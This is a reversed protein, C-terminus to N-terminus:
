KKFLFVNKIQISKYQDNDFNVIPFSASGRGDDYLLEITYNNITYKGNGPKKFKPDISNVYYLATRDEFRGDAYFTITPEYGFTTVAAPSNDATYIGSLKLGDVASLKTYENGGYYVKNNSYTFDVVRSTAGYFTAKGTQLNYNAWYDKKVERDTERDFENFGMDPLVSLTNLKGDSYVTLLSIKKGFDGYINLGSSLGMYIGQIGKGRLTYCPKAPSPLNKFQLRAWFPAIDGFFIIDFDSSYNAFTFVTEVQGNVKAVWLHVFFPANNGERVNAGGRAIDYGKISTEKVLVPEQYKTFGGLYKQWVTNYDNEINGSSAFGKVVAVNVWRDRNGFIPPLRLIFDEGNAELQWNRPTQFLINGCTTFPDNNVAINDCSTNSDVTSDNSPKRCAAPLICFLILWVFIYCIRGNLNRIKSQM